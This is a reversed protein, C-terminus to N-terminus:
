VKCESNNRHYYLVLGTNITNMLVNVCNQILLAMVGKTLFLELSYSFLCWVGLYSMVIAWISFDESSKRMYIRRSSLFSSIAYVSQGAFLFWNTYM